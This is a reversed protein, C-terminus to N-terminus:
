GWREDLPNFHQHHNTIILVFIRNLIEFRFGQISMCPVCLTLEPYLTRWMM